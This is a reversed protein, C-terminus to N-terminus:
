VSLATLVFYKNKTNIYVCVSLELVQLLFRICDPNFSFIFSKLWPFYLVYKSVAYSIRVM